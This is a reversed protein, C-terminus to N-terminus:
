PRLGDITQKIKDPKLIGNATIEITGQAASSISIDGIGFIRQLFGQDVEIFRVDSHRVERTHKSLIGKRLITRKSTVTLTTNTVVLWWILLILAGLGVPILIAFLVFAVPSDRFMKPHTKILTKETAPGTVPQPPHNIPQYGNSRQGSHASDPPMVEVVKSVFIGRGSAISEADMPTDATVEVSTDKATNSDAGYIKFRPM